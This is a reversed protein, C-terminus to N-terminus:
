SEFPNDIVTAKCPTFVQVSEGDKTEKDELKSFNCVWVNGAVKTLAGGCNKCKRIPEKRAKVKLGFAKGMDELSHFRGHIKPIAVKQEKM